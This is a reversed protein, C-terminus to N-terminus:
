LPSTDQPPADDDSLDPLKVGRRASAGASLHFHESRDRGVMRRHRLLFMAGFGRWQGVLRVLDVNRGRGSGGIEPQPGLGPSFDPFGDGIGVGGVRQYLGFLGNDGFRFVTASRTVNMWSRTRACFSSAAARLVSVAASFVASRPQTTFNRLVM